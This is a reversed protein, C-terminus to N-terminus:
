MDADMFMAEEFLAKHRVGETDAVESFDRTSGDPHYPFPGYEPVYTVLYEPGHVQRQARVMRRWVNEFSTREAEFTPHTPDPCQPSQTTGIRSHIHHVHPCIQDWLRIDEDTEDLLRECVLVWHSIDATIRIEPVATLIQATVYPNFLARSRHTEHCVKGELGLERDVKLSGRYFELSQDITWADSGSPAVIKYPRLIRSRQLQSRYFLLHGQPTSGPAKFRNVTPDASLILVTIELNHEDCIERLLKLDDLYFLNVEIGAYGLKKLEPLWTKYNEYGPTPDIGWTSRFRMAKTM